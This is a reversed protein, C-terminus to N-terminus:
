AASKKKAKSAISAPKRKMALGHPKKLFQIWRREEGPADFTQTWHVRFEEAKEQARKKMYARLTKRGESKPLADSVLQGASVADNIEGLSTQVDKLATLRERFEAGYCPEFLELTYRVKKSALRVKHLSAPSPKSELAERVRAFYDAMMRPLERSANVAASQADNWEM